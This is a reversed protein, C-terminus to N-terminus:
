RIGPLARMTRRSSRGAGSRKSRPKTTSTTAATFPGRATEVSWPALRLREVWAGQPSGTATPSSRRCRARTSRWRRGCRGISWRRSRVLSRFTPSAHGTAEWFRCRAGSSPPSATSTPGAGRRWRRRTTVRSGRAHLQRALHQAVSRAVLGGVVPPLDKRIWRNMYSAGEPHVFLEWELVQHFHNEFCRKWAHGAGAEAASLGEDNAIGRRRSLHAIIADSDGLRRGDEEIWPSKGQPGKGANNEVRHDFAIGHLGLWAFLKLAFPGVTPLGWDPAFAYVQLTSM